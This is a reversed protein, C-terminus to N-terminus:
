PKWEERYGPRGSYPLALLRVTSCTAEYIWSCNDIEGDDDRSSCEHNRDHLEIIALKADCEAVVRAPDWAEYFEGGIGTCNDFHFCGGQAEDALRRDEEIQERLWPLLDATM